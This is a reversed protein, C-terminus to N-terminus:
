RLPAGRSLYLSSVHFEGDHTTAVKGVVGQQLVGNLMVIRKLHDAGDDAATRAIGVTEGAAIRFFVADGEGFVLQVPFQAPTRANDAVPLDHGIAVHQNGKPVAARAARDAANFDRVFLPFGHM